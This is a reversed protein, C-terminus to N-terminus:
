ESKMTALGVVLVGVTAVAIGVLVPALAAGMMFAVTGLLAPIQPASTSLMLGDFHAAALNEPTREHPELKDIARRALSRQLWIGVVTAVAALVPAAWVYPTIMPRLWMRVEDFEPPFILMRLLTEVGLALPTSIGVVLLILLTRTRTRPEGM